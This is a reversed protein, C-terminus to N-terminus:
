AAKLKDAASIAKGGAATAKDAASTAALAAANAEDAAGNAEDGSGSAKLEAQSAAERAANLEEEQAGSRTLDDCKVRADSAEDADARAQTAAASAIDAAEGAVVSAENAEVAAATAEEAAASAEQGVPSNRLAPSAAELAGTVMGAGSTCKAAATTALRAAKRAEAAAGEAREAPAYLLADEASLKRKKSGGRSLEFLLSTIFGLYSVGEVSGLFDGQLGEGTVSTTLLSSFVVVSSSLIVFRSVGSCLWDPRGDSLGYLTIELPTRPVVTSWAEVHKVVRGGSTTYTTEGRSEFTPTLPGDLKCTLQWVATLTDDEERWGLVEVEVDKMVKGLSACNERYEAVGEYCGNADEFVCNSDFARMNTSGGAFYGGQIDEELSKTLRSGSASIKVNQAKLGDVFTGLKGVGKRLSDKLGPPAGNDDQQPDGGTQRAACRGRGGSKRRPSRLLPVRGYPFRLLPPFTLPATRAEM